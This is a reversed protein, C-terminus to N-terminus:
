GLLHNDIWTLCLKRMEETEVHGVDECHLHWNEAMGLNSYIQKLNKDIVRLGSPPTLADQLGACCLHARPAILSNIDSTSFQKVLDPVYYYVGHGDLTDLELLTSFDSMCCLDLCLKVREDLAAVWWAMTSGMSIGATALKNIDFDPHSELWNIAAISDHVMWGWMVEGNWLFRKFLASETSLAREGFAWHDICLIAIGRNLLQKSWEDNFLSPRGLIIEEKGLEYKGGHAHNWLMVPWGSKPRDMDPILLLAPVDQRGNLNLVLRSVVGGEIIKSEGNSLLSPQTQPLPGLSAWLEARTAM